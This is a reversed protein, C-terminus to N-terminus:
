TGMAEASDPWQTGLRTGADRRDRRSLPRLGPGSSAVAPTASSPEDRAGRRSFATEALSAIPHAPQVVAVGRYDVLPGGISPRSKIASRLADTLLARASEDQALEPYVARIDLFLENWFLRSVPGYPSPECPEDLFAAMLPLTAVLDGNAEKVWQVLRSLERLGGGGMSQGDHLAYMPAFVGWLRDKGPLFAQRPSSILLAQQMGGGVAVRLQHYGLPVAPGLPLDVVRYTTGEVTWDSRTPLDELRGELGRVSGDELYLEVRYPGRRRPDPLRIATMPTQDDWVVAVPELVRQALEQRRVRLAAPVEHPGDLPAGLHPLLTLLAENSAVYRKGRIDHYSLEIGYHMALAELDQRLDGM